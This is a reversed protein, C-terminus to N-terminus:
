KKLIKVTKLLGNNDFLICHYIGSTLNDINISSTEKIPSLRQNDVTRGSMDILMLQIQTTITQNMYVVLENNSPSTYITIDLFNEDDISIPNDLGIGTLSVNTTYIDSTSVSLIGNIEGVSQPTFRIYVTTNISSTENDIHLEHSGDFNGSELSVEFDDSASVTIQENLNSAIITFNQEVSSEGVKTDAFALSKPASAISPVLFTSEQQYYGINVGVDSKGAGLAPSGEILGYNGESTGAFLPNEDINNLSDIAEDGIKWNGSGGSGRILSYSFENFISDGITKYDNIYSGVPHEDWMIVNVCKNVIKSEAHQNINYLNVGISSQDSNNYFTANEITLEMKGIWTSTGASNYICGGSLEASNDHFLVNRFTPIMTNLPLPSIRLAGGSKARNYRFIVNEFLPDITCNANGVGDICLAGGDFAYNNEFVLNRCILSVDKNTIGSGIYLGGGRSYMGTGAIAYGDSITFGDLITGNTYGYQSTSNNNIARVVNYANESTSGEEDDGDLDGSLVTENMVFDRNALTTSDIESENGAFGGYMKVGDILVFADSRKDIYPTYRGKAVVITDGEETFELASQPNPYANTWSGGGDIGPADDNVFWLTPKVIYGFLFHYTKNTMYPSSYRVYHYPYDTYKLPHFRLYLTTTNITGSEPSVIITDNPIGDFDGPTLSIEINEDSTIMLDDMLDVASFSYSTDVSFEELKITEGNYSITAPPITLMPHATGDFQWLGMNTGYSTDGSSLAPSDDWYRIDGISLDLFLPDADINNSNDTGLQTDWGVGSGGSGEIICNSYIASSSNNFVQYEFDASISFRNGWLVTNIFVPNSSYANYIIAGTNTTSCYNNTVISNIFTPSSNDNRIVGRDEDYTENGYVRINKYICSSNINSIACGYGSNEGGTFSLGDIITSSGCNEALFVNVSNNGFVDGPLDNNDIDGNLITENGSFNRNALVASDITTEDGNLSGILTVGDNITFPIDSSATDPKYVGGTVLITDQYIASKLADRLENYANTWNSGNNNGTANTNVYYRLSVDSFITAKLNENFGQFDGSSCLVTDTYFGKEDSTIRVYFTEFLNGASPTFSLSQTEGSYDGSTKTLQFPADITVLADNTLNSGIITGTIEGSAVGIQTPTFSNGGSFSVFLSQGYMGIMGMRIFIILTLLRTKM